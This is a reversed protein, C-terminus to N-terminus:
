SKKAKAEAEIMATSIENTERAYGLNSLKLIVAGNAKKVEPIFEPPTNKIMRLFNAKWDEITDFEAHKGPGRHLIFEPRELMEPLPESAEAAPPPTVATPAGGMTQLKPQNTEEDPVIWAPRGMEQLDDMAAAYHFMGFPLARRQRLVATKQCMAPFGVKPDNWPSFGAKEEGGETQGSASAAKSNKEKIALIESIPIVMNAVRVGNPMVQCSFAAIIAADAKLLNPYIDVKPDSGKRIEYRDDKRILDSEISRGGRAAITNLGKYGLQATCVNGQGKMWRPILYGQGLFSGPMVGLCGLTTCSMLISPMSCNLLKPNANLSELFANQFAVAPLDPTATMIQALRPMLERRITEDIGTLSLATSAM